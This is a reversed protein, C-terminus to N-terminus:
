GYHKLGALVRAGIGGTCETHLTGADLQCCEGAKLTQPGSEYRLIFEGDLVLLRASFPHTHLDGGAVAPAYDTMRIEDDFGDCQLGARFEM